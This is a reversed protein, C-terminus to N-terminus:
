VYVSQVLIAARTYRRALLGPVRSLYFLQFIIFAAEEETLQPEEVGDGEGVFETYDVPFYGEAGDELQGYWWFRESQEIVYILHQRSFSLEGESGEYDQLTRMRCITTMGEFSRERGVRKSIDKERGVGKQIVAVRYTQHKQKAENKM